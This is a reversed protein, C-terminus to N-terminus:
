PGGADLRFRVVNDGPPQQEAVALVHSAWAEIARKREPLFEARQYVAAVGQIAGTVHNLLKDAVHPPIGLGALNTVGTRRFDHLRWDAGVRIHPRAAEATIAHANQEFQMADVLQDKIHSFGGIQGKRRTVFVL